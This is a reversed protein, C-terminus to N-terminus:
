RPHLRRAVADRLLGCFAKAKPSELSAPPILAFVTLAAMSWDPLVRQLAGDRLGPAALFDPLAAVGAGAWAAAELALGLDLTLRGTVAVRETQEGDSLVWQAPTPAAAYRLCDHTKLDEPREPTGRRTLYSPAAYLARSVTGVAEVAFDTDMTDAIRIRIDVGEPPPGVRDELLLRVELGEHRELFAPLAPAFVRTAFSAPASVTLVGTAAGADHLTGGAAELAQLLPEIRELYTAGAPTLQLARTSRRFLRAGLEAELAAVQKSIQDRSAGLTRGAAAFSGEKAAAAFAALYELRGHAM